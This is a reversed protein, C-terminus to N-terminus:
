SLSFIKNKPSFKDLFPIERQFRFFQVDGNFEAYDIYDVIIKM